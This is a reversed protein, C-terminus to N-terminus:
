SINFLKEGSHGLFMHTSEFHKYCSEAESSIHNTVKQQFYKNFFYPFFM